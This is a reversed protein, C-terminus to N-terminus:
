SSGARRLTPQLQTLEFTDAFGQHVHVALALRGPACRPNRGMEAGPVGWLPVHPPGRTVALGARPVRGRGRRVM